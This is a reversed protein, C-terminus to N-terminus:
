ATRHTDIWRDLRHLDYRWKPRQDTGLNIAFAAYDGRRTHRRVSTLSEALTEAIEEATVLRKRPSM